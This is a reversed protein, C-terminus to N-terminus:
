IRPGLEQTVQFRPLDIEGIQGQARVRGHELYVVRNALREVVAPDHFIGLLTMGRSRADHLAEIVRETNAADLASTPEDALLLRPESVLARAVNVRQQEGGSFLSPYSEWLSEAIDLRRLLAAARERAEDPSVGRRLLPLAVVNLTSVRPEVKLFQSVFGIEARRLAIVARDSAQVLDIVEGTARRYLIEGGDLLYTRHVAKVVTSKGAGSAGVLAVLEGAQIDFSLDVIPRVQKGGLIHLTITKTCGRLSLIPLNSM